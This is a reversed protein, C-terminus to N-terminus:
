NEDYWQGNDTVIAGPMAMYFGSSTIIVKGNNIFHVGAELGFFDEVILTGNNIFVGAPPVLWGRPAVTLTVGTDISIHADTTSGFQMTSITTDATLRVVGGNVAADIAAEDFFPFMNGSLTSLWVDAEPRQRTGSRVTNIFWDIASELSSVADRIDPQSAGSDALLVYAHELAQELNDARHQSVWLQDQYFEQGTTGVFVDGGARTREKQEQALPIILLLETFDVSSTGPKKAANFAALAFELASVANTVDSESQATGIVSSATIIANNMLFFESPTAWSDGIGVGDGNTSIFVSDVERQALRIAWFLTDTNVPTDYAHRTGRKTSRLFMNTANNLATFEVGAEVDTTGTFSLFIQARHIANEFDDMVDQTVWERGFIVDTGDASVSVDPLVLVYIFQLTDQLKIRNTNTSNIEDPLHINIDREQEALAPQKERELTEILTVDERNIVGNDVFREVDALVSQLVFLSTDNDFTIERLEHKRTIVSTDFVDVIHKENLIIGGADGSGEFMTFAVNGGPMHEAIFMTGRITLVSNGVRVDVRNGSQQSAADVLLGGNLVSVSLRDWWTRSISIKSNQALKFLSGDDLVLICHSNEGTTVTYGDFLNMMAAAVIERDTGKTMTVNGSVQVISISRGRASTVPQLDYLQEPTFPMQKIKNNATDAIYLMENHYHLDSPNNFIDVDNDGPFGSGAITRVVGTRTLERIVHNGSDAILISDGSITLGRPFLFVTEAITTVQGNEIKKITHNGTDAVYIITGCESVAIGAPENFGEAITKINGSSDIKCIRNNLTDTIYIIDNNDIALAMPTNLQGAEGFIHSIGDKVHIIQHNESDTFFLEGHSNFVGGTPRGVNTLSTSANNSEVCRVAANYTDFIVINGRSDLTVGHPLALQATQKDGNIHGYGGTGIVTTIGPTHSISFVEAHPIEPEDINQPFDTIFESPEEYVEPIKNIISLYAIMTVAMSIAICIFIVKRRM